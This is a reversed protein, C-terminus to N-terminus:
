NKKSSFSQKGGIPTKQNEGSRDGGRNKFVEKKIEITQPGAIIKFETRRNIRHEDDNCKVGNTCHNTIFKEGYGVPKIRDPNIGRDILWARASDARRQSLGQNYRDNGQADTHSSLEIVMDPYEDMLGVLVGLDQEADPLINSKDLDYYINNLRINQNITVIEVEDEVPGGVKYNPDNKLTFTKKVTYDDFIGNTNFSVSDPLYGEKKVIAKYNRDAQLPFNFTNSNFNTKTEPYGGLTIDYVEIAAGNLPGKNDNVLAMLDIVLERIYVGYIDDCCSDSGKLKQKNKHPRNSVLFGNTGSENFRLFLDDYASNYNFGINTLNQWNSGNWSAYFIDYGGMSPHGNSSFYLTGNNFYPSVEDKVTNITTGLNTPVGYDSGKITSYYIDFGGIGGDMNSSFYIVENGFLDGVMPHKIIYDGNLSEIAEPASWGDATKDSVFLQSSGIKNNQLVARTFYMKRGDRSFAVGGSNFEPRNISEPLATVKDYDGKNNKEAVYLKAHYDKESGDLIIEKKRNFSSFYLAGDPGQIPASEASPSNVKGPLFDIVAELNPAFNEMAEIGTLEFKAVNKLSDDAEPDAIITNFENLAEKYKAQSKLCRAYDVRVDEYEKDKNKKILREYIKEARGFDRALVLLDAIALQLNQDKSDEYAKSYWEIAGYYDGQEAAQDAVKLKTDYTVTRIPQAGLHLAFLLSLISILKIRNKNMIMESLNISSKM